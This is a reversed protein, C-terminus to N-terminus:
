PTAEWSAALGPVPGSEDMRVLTDFSARALMFDPLSMGVAPDFTAPIDITARITDTDVPAEGGGGGGGGGSCATLLLAGGIALAVAPRTIGHTM